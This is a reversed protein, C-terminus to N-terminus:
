QSGIVGAVDVTHAMVDLSYGKTGDEKDWTRLEESGTMVRARVLRAAM